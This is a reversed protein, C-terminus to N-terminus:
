RLKDLDISETVRLYGLDNLHLSDAGRYAALIRAPEAPDRVAADFDFVGSVETNTRIWANVEQRIQEGPDSFYVHGKFPTMTTLYVQIGMAKAAAVASAISNILDAATAKENPTWALQFGIDNIGMQLIAHTVGAVGLADRRFREVGRLGFRDHLWRNGGLGANVVSVPSGGGTKLLRMSLLDPYRQNAGMSSGNGDTLSDGFAVVVRAPRARYVDMASMWYSSTLRNAPSSPMAAASSLDGSAVYHIANAYRHSSTSDAAERVYVSVAVDGGDPVRFSVKDSWVEAGPPISVSDGGQFTVAVDTAMDVAGGGTSLAARVRALPLPAKGYLNGFKIRLQDGGMSLHAIQRLTQDRFSTSVPPPIDLFRVDEQLDSLVAMWTGMPKTEEASPTESSGGGCGVLGSAAWVGLTSLFLRRNTRMWTRVSQM